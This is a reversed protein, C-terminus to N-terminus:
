LAQDQGPDSGARQSVDQYPPMGQTGPNSRARRGALRLSSRAEAQTGRLDTHAISACMSCIPARQRECACSCYLVAMRCLLKVYAPTSAVPACASLGSHVQSSALMTQQVILSRSRSISMLMEHSRAPLYLYQLDLPRPQLYRPVATGLRSM